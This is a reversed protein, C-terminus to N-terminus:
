GTLIQIEKLSDIIVKHINRNLSIQYFLVTVIREDQFTHSNLKTVGPISKILTTQYLGNIGINFAFSIWMFMIISFSELEFFINPYLM